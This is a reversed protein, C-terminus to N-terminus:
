FTKSNNWHKTETKNWMYGRRFYFQFLINQKLKIETKNWIYGGNLFPRWSKQLFFHVGSDCDESRRHKKEPFCIISLKQHMRISKEFNMIGCTVAPHLAWKHTRSFLSSTTRRYHFICYYSSCHTLTWAFKTTYSNKISCKLSWYMVM